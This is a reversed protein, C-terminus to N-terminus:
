LMWCSAILVAGIMAGITMADATCAMGVSAPM